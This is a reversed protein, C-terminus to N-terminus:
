NNCNYNLFLSNISPLSSLMPPKSTLLEIVHMPKSQSIKGVHMPKHSVWLVYIM